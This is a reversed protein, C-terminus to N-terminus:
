NVRLDFKTIKNVKVKVEQGLEYDGELIVPKYAYNRGIWTGDKGKETIVVAGCWKYWRENQMYAINNFISSILTSRNKSEAGSVQKDMEAAQTDDRARFRSVNLVDPNTWRILDVTNSFQIRSESPFGVIVDTSITLEPIYAKFTEIIKKFDKVSYERNMRQLVDDNGSQVPLHLFKFMKEHQYIKILEDLIPLINNPNMMGLRIKFHGSISLINKLLEVLKNSGTDLGYCANDQSTIWLEKCGKIIAKRAESVVTDMPYSILKGKIKNVSCYTCSGNCGSLIPIIAVTKNKRIRPLNIKVEDTYALAEIPNDNVTEEVVSVIEKINHTSVFSAQPLIKRVEKLVQQTICGTVIYKKNSYKDKLDKVHKVAKSDGKVTCVHVILVYADEPDEVKKFEHQELLGAMVEAESMNTSCGYSEIYFNIMTILIGRVM